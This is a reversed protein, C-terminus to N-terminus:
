NLREEVILSFSWNSDFLNVLNGKDDSLRVTLRELIIPALYQRQHYALDAGFKIYPEPRLTQINQLPIIAFAAGNNGGALKNNFGRAVTQAVSDATLANITYLQARTLAGGRLKCTANNTVSITGYSKTDAISILGKTLRQDSYDELSLIFYKPGYVDAAAEAAVTAGAALTLYMDGSTPDVTNRFGLLWGLTNNIGVTQFNDLVVLGCNSFNVSNNQIYFVVTVSPSLLDNNTFSYKSTSVDYSVQLGSTAINSTALTNIRDRLTLPTYNGDPIVIMIGNYLFFTNGTQFSFVQWTTPIQYSYLKLSIARNIPIALNFTFNTNFTSALPKNVYPLINTRYQSDINIIHTAIIPAVSPNSSPATSTDAVVRAGEAYYKSPTKGYDKLTNTAWVAEIGEQNENAVTTQIDELYTLLKERALGFFDALETNGETTMRAILDNAVQTVNAPDPNTINFIALLDEVTYKDIDTDIDGM